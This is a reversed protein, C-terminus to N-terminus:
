QQKGPTKLFRRQERLVNQNLVAASLICCMIGSGFNHSKDESGSNISTM